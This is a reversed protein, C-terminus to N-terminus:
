TRPGQQVSGTLLVGVVAPDATLDALAAELAKQYRNDM